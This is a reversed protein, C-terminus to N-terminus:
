QGASYVNSLRLAVRAVAGPDEGFVYVNPEIGKGGTDVVADFKPEGGKLKARLSDLTPDSSRPTGYGGIVISRLKLRHLAGAMSRDYRLNMCARVEPRHKRVMLLLRALHRSAGFEPRTLAVARERIRVIRGPIAVVDDPFESDTPAYALNVSVEPVISAFAKSSELIRVAEEVQSIAEAPHDKAERFEKMCIECDALFPYRARHADCAMGKGLIGTWVSEITEQADLPGRKLDEALLSSYLDAQESNVHLIALSEYARTSPSTLYLSVSAQTTGLMGAIASQSFGKNKLARSVLQRMAPLFVDVMLEDPPQM